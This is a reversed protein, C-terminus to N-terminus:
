PEMARKAKRHSKIRKVLFLTGFYGLCGAVVGSVAGGASLALFVQKGSALGSELSLSDMEVELPLGLMLAGLLYNFGYLFPATVPNTVWIGAIATLRSVGLLSALPLVLLTQLGMSPTMATFVGVATGWALQEPTDRSGSLQRQISKLIRGIKKGARLKM